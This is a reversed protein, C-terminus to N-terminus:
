DFITQVIVSISPQASRTIIVEPYSITPYNDGYVIHLINVDTSYCGIIPHERYQEFNSDYVAIAGSCAYLSDNSSTGSLNILAGFLDEPTNYPTSTALFIDIVGRMSFKTETTSNATLTIIHKYLTFHDKVTKKSVLTNNDSIADWSVQQQSLVAEKVKTTGDEDISLLNARHSGDTGGGVTFVYNGSAYDNYKGIALSAEQNTVTGMGETHSYLGGATTQYGEAHSYNTMAQTEFGEAHAYDGIAETRQGEAHSAIGEAVNNEGEAHSYNGYAIGQTNEDGRGEAHSGIGKAQTGEGEAHSHQASAITNNGEVHSAYGSATGGLGEAHSYDESATTNYGETHSGEGKAKTNEGEAHSAYSEAKTNEGEAHSADVGAFTGVGEAHAYNIGEEIECDQSGNILNKTRFFETISYDTDYETNYVAETRLLLKVSAPIQWNGGVKELIKIFGSSSSARFELAKFQGSEDPNFDTGSFNGRTLTPSYSLESPVDPTNRGYIKAKAYINSNSPFLAIIDAKKAVFKYGQFYIILNNGEEKVFTDRDYGAAALSTLQGETSLNSTPDTEEVRYASPFVKIKDSGLYAM